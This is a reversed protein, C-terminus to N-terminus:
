IVKPIRLVGAKQLPEINVKVGDDLDPDWGLPREEPTKWPTQIRFDREGGEPGEHHGEQIRQLRSDLDQAEELRAQWEARDDARGEKDALAAERRFTEIAERLYQSRLKAM